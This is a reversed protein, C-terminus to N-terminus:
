QSCQKLLRIWGLGFIQPIQYEHDEHLSVAARHLSSRSIFTQSRRRSAFVRNRIQVSFPAFDACDWQEALRNLMTCCELLKMRGCIVVTFCWKEESHNMPCLLFHRGIRYRREKYFVSTIAFSTQGSTGSCMWGCIIRCVRAICKYWVFAWPAAKATDQGHM